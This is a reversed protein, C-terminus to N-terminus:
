HLDNVAENAYRIMMSPGVSRATADVFRRIMFDLILFIDSVRNILRNM